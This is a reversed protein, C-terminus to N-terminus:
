RQGAADVAALGEDIVFDFLLRERALFAHEEAVVDADVSVASAHHRHIHMENVRFLQGDGGRNKVELLAGLFHM